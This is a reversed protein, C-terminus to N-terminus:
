SDSYIAEFIVMNPNSTPKQLLRSPREKGPCLGALM